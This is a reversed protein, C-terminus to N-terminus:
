PRLRAIHGNPGIGLFFSPRMQRIRASRARGFPLPRPIEAWPRAQVAPFALLFPRTM